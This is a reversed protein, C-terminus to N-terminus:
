LNDGLHILFPSLFVVSTQVTLSSDGYQWFGSLLLQRAPFICSQSDFSELSFFFLSFFFVRSFQLSSSRRWLNVWGSVELGPSDFDLFLAAARGLASQEWICAGKAIKAKQGKRTWERRSEAVKECPVGVMSSHYTLNLNGWKHKDGATLTRHYSLKQIIPEKESLEEGIIMNLPSITSECYRWHCQSSTISISHDQVYTALHKVLAM